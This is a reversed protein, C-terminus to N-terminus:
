GKHVPSIFLIQAFIHQGAKVDCNALGLLGFQQGAAHNSHQKHPQQNKTIYDCTSTALLKILMIAIVGNPHYAKVDPSNTASM